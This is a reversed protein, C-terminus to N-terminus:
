MGYGPLDIAISRIGRKALEPQAYHFQDSSWIMQHVLIVTPDSSAGEVRVHVQGWPGDIYARYHAADDARAAHWPSGLVASLSFVLLAARTLVGFPYRM